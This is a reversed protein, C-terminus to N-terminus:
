YNQRKNAGFGLEAQKALSAHQDSAQLPVCAQRALPSSRRQTAVVATLQIAVQLQLLAGVVGHDQRCCCTSNLRFQFFTKGSSPVIFDGTPL